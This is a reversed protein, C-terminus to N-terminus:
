IVLRSAAFRSKSSSETKARRFYRAGPTSDYAHFRRHFPPTEERATVVAPVVLLLLLLPLRRM